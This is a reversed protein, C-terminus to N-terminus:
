LFGRKHTSQFLESRRHTVKFYFVGRHTVNFRSCRQTQSVTFKFDKQPYGQLWFSCSKQPHGEFSIVKQPHCEVFVFSQPDCNGFLFTMRPLKLFKLRLQATMFNCSGYKCAESTKADSESLRTGNRSEIRCKTERANVRNKCDNRASNRSKALM